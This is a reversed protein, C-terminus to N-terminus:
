YMDEDPMESMQGKKKDELDIVKAVTVGDRTM